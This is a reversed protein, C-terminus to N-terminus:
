AAKGDALEPLDRAATPATLGAFVRVVRRPHPMYDKPARHMTALEDWIIIDGEEWLHRYVFDPRTCHQYLHRLLMASEGNSLGDVKVVYVPNLWLMKRGSVPHRTVLPHLKSTFKEDWQRQVEAPVKHVGLAARYGTPPAFVVNLTELWAAMVPSLADFACAMSAWCTGGGYPPLVEARLCAISPIEDCFSSDVHWDQYEDRSNFVSPLREADVVAYLANDLVDTPDNNGALKQSEVTDLPGFIGAAAKQQELDIHQGRFVIVFHDALAQRIVAADNDSIPQRLDVGDIRAGITTTLPKVKMGPV